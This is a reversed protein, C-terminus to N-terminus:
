WWESGPDGKVPGKVDDTMWGGYLGGPQPKVQEGDVFCDLKAPYFSFYGQIGAFEPFPDFYSWAAHRIQQYDTMLNWYSAVGKWECRSNLAALRFVDTNVHESPLYFVPGGATELVRFSQNSKALLRAKHQVTVTRHDPVMEPPRPYDWVSEEGLGTTEAFDPRKSGNFQWQGRGAKAWEPLEAM